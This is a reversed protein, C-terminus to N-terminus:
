SHAIYIHLITECTLVPRASLSAEQLRRVHVSIDNVYLFQNQQLIGKIVPNYIITGQM